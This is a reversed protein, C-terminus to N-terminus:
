SREWLLEFLSRHTKSIEESEILIIINEFRGTFIAVKNGFIIETAPLPFQHPILRSERNEKADAKIIERAYQSDSILQRSKIGRVIKRSIIKSKIFSESLFTLFERGSTIILYEEIDSVLIDKWLKKLGEVGEYFIVQPRKESVNRLELLQDLNKNFSDLREKLNDCLHQPDAALIYKKGKRRVEQLIGSTKLGDILSYITTRKLGSKRSVEQVTAMGLALSALYLKAEKKNLGYNMLSKEIFNFNPM